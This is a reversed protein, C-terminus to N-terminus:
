EYRLAEGPKFHVARWLPPQIVIITIMMTIVFAILVFQVPFLYVITVNMLYDVM